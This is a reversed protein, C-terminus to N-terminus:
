LCVLVQLLPVLYLAASFLVFCCVAVCLLVCYCLAVCLPVFCCVNYWFRWAVACHGVFCSCTRVRDSMIMECLRKPDKSRFPPGGTLMEYLICGFSWWDVSQGTM